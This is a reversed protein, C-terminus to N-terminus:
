NQGILPWYLVLQGIVTSPASSSSCDRLLSIAPSGSFELSGFSVSLSTGLFHLGSASPPFPASLSPYRWNLTFWSHKYKNIKIKKGWIVTSYIRFSGAFTDWSVCTQGWLMLVGLNVITLWHLIQLQYKLIKDIM